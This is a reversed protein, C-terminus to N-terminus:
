ATVLEERFVIKRIPIIRGEPVENFSPHSFLFCLQGSQHDYYDRVFKADKPLGEVTTIIGRSTNGETMLALLFDFTAMVM